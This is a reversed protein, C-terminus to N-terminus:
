LLSKLRIWGWRKTTIFMGTSKKATGGCLMGWVVSGDPRLYRKERHHSEEEGAALRELGARDEVVDDAHTIDRVPVGVLAAQERGVMAAFSRNVRLFVGDLDILAMGIAAVDFANEPITPDRKV